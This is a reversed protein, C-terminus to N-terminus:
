LQEDAWLMASCVTNNMFGAARGTTVQIVSRSSDPMICPVALPGTRPPRVQHKRLKRCAASSVSACCLRSAGLM